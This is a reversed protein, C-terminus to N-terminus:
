ANEMNLITLPKGNLIAEVEEYGTMFAYNYRAPLAFVYAQNRGLERPGVPAAGIHFKEQQLGNWQAVTFIMIPIDQRPHEATWQPHQISLLPGTEVPVDGAANGIANGVWKDNVVTFGRWSDPLAIKFGYETNQYDVAQPQAADYPGATVDEILWRNDTNKVMLTVPRTAASGGNVAETSTIEVVKGNIKYYSESVKTLTAIEIRDPWPSSVTRGLAQKPDSQWKSLLSPSLFASYNDKITQSALEPSASLSVWQLKKGFDEVLKRVTVAEDVAVPQELQVKPATEKPMMDKATHGTYGFISAGLLLATGIIIFLNM